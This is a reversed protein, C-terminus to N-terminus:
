ILRTLGHCQVLVCNIVSYDVVVAAGMSHESYPFPDIAEVRKPMNGPNGLIALIDLSPGLSV